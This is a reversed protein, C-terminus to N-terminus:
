NPLITQNGGNTHLYEINEDNSISATILKLVHLNVVFVHGSKRSSRRSWQDVNLFLIDIEYLTFHCTCSVQNTKVTKIM